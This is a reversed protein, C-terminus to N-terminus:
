MCKLAEEAFYKVDKDKDNSSMTSLTLRIQSLVDEPALSKTIIDKIVMAARLRINPVPDNAASLTLHIIERAFDPTLNDAQMLAKAAGLMTARLIFEDSSMSKVTPFVQEHVWSTNGTTAHCIVPLVAAATERTESVADKFTLLYPTLFQELFYDQGLYKVVAPMALIMQKKVRWNSDTFLGQLSGTMRNFVQPLSEVIAPLKSIVRIRVMPDADSVFKIIAPCLHTAAADQGVKVASDIVLDVVFKRAAPADDESLQQCIPVMEKLYEEVGVADIFPVAATCAIVRIDTETDLLLTGLLPFIEAHIDSQAFNTAFTSYNQVIATRIRWSHDEVCSKVIPVIDSLTQTVEKSKMTECISAIGNAVTVQVPPSDDTMLHKLIQYIENSLQSANCYKALLPLSTAAARRVIAMEDHSLAVFLELISAIDSSDTLARFLEPIIYCASVRSYFIEGIEPDSLKKVLTFYAQAVANNSPRFKSLINSTSLAAATRVTTEEAGCLAELIPILTGAHEVGGLYPLIDGIKRATWLIVQDSDQLKTQIYPLFDARVKDPTMLCCILIMKSMSETRIIVDPNSTEQRFFDFVSLDGM